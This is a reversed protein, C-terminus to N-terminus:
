PLFEWMKKSRMLKNGKFIALYHPYMLLKDMFHCQIIPFGHGPVNFSLIASWHESYQHLNLKWHLYWSLRHINQPPIFSWVLFPHHFTLINSKWRTQRSWPFYQHSSSWIDNTGWHRCTGKSILLTVADFLHYNNDPGSPLISESLHQPFHKIEAYSVLLRNPNGSPPALCSFFNLGHNKRWEARYYVIYCLM